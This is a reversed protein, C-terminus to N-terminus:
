NGYATVILIALPFAFQQKSKTELQHMAHNFDQPLDKQSPYSSTQAMTVNM